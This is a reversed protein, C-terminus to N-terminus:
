AKAVCGHALARDRQKLRNLFAEMRQM